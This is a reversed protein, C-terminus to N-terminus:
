NEYMNGLKMERLKRMPIALTEFINSLSDQKSIRNDKALYFNSIDDIKYLEAFLYLAEIMYPNHSTIVVSINNKVLLAIIEAYKLQWEPHLHVEPEDIIILSREDIFGSNILMQLIGFSKIGTATNLAKYSKGDQKIYKFEREQSIYKMYGNIVKSIEISLENDNESYISEKLKLDLDKIHFAINPIGLLSLRDTKDRIEFYSKSKEIAESYNLIIPTEILTADNFYIEDFINLKIDSFNILEINLIENEFEKINIVSKEDKAKYKNLIENEFESFFIKKFARKVVEEKKDSQSIIESLKNLKYIISESIKDDLSTLVDKRKDIADQGFNLIDEFFTVPYFLDRIDIKNSFSVRRRLTFYINDLLKKINVEKDEELDERYRSVSKIISFLVKGITSKGTDNYGAIVTLGDLTIDAEKIIGINRLKLQM